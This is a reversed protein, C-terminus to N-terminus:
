KDLYVDLSTLSTKPYFGGEAQAKFFMNQNFYKLFLSKLANGSACKLFFILPFINAFIGQSPPVFPGQTKGEEWHIVLVPCVCVCVCVCKGCHAHFHTGYM